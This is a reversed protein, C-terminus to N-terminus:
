QNITHKTVRTGHVKIVMTIKCQIKLKIGNYSM